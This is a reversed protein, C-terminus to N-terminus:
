RAWIIEKDIDLVIKNCFRIDDNTLFENLGLTEENNSEAFKRIDLFKETNKFMETPYSEELIDKSFNLVNKSINIILDRFELYSIVKRLQTGDLRGFKTNFYVIGDEIVNSIELNSRIFNDYWTDQAFHFLLSTYQYYSLHSNYKIFNDISTTDGIAKILRSKSNDTCKFDFNDLKSLKNPYIMYAGKNPDSNFTDLEFHSYKRDGTYYRITDPLLVWPLTMRYIQDDHCIMRYRFLHEMLHM